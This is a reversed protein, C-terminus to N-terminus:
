LDVRVGAKFQRGSGQDYLNSWDRDVTEDSGELRVGRATLETFSMAGFLGLNEQFQLSVLIQVKGYLADLYDIDSEEAASSGRVYGGAISPIVRVNGLLPFMEYGFGAGVQLFTFEERETDASFADGINDATTYASFNLLVFTHVWNPRYTLDVDISSWSGFSISPFIGFGLDPKEVLVDMVDLPKGHVQIFSSPAALNLAETGDASSRIATEENDSVKIARVYGRGKEVIDGNEDFTRRVVKYRRRVSVGEKKGIRSMIPGKAVIFSRVQLGETPAIQSLFASSILQETPSVGYEGTVNETTKNLFTLPVTYSKLRRIREDKDDCNDCYLPTVAQRVEKIDAYALKYLFCHAKLTEKNKKENYSTVEPVVFLVFSNAVLANAADGAMNRGGRVAAIATTAQQETQAYVARKRLKDISWNNDQDVSYLSKLIDKTIGSSQLWAGIFEANEATQKKDFLSETTLQLDSLDVERMIDIDLRGALASREQSFDSLRTTVSQGTDVFVISLSPRLYNEPSSKAQRAFAETHSAIVMLIIAVSIFRKMAISKNPRRRRRLAILSYLSAAVVSM